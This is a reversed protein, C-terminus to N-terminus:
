LLLYHDYRYICANYIFYNLFHLVSSYSVTNSGVFSIAKIDDDDCIANIIDQDVDLLFLVTLFILVFFNLLNM